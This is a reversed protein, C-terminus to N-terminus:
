QAGGKLCAKASAVLDGILADRYADRRVEDVAESIDVVQDWLGLTQLAARLTDTRQSLCGFGRSFVYAEGTLWDGPEDLLGGSYLLPDGDEEAKLFAAANERAESAKAIRGGWSDQEIWGAANRGDEAADFAALELLREQVSGATNGGEILWRLWAACAAEDTECARFCDLLALCDDALAAGAGPEPEWAADVLDAGDFTFSCTQRIAGKCPWAKGSWPWDAFGAPTVEVREAEPYVTVGECPHFARLGDAAPEPPTGPRTTNTDHEM